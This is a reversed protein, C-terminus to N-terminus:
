FSDVAISKKELFFIGKKRELLLHREKVIVATVLM